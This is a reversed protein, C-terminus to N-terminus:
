SACSSRLTPRRTQSTAALAARWATWTKPRSRHRAGRTSPRPLARLEELTAGQRRSAGLVKIIRAEREGERIHLDAAGAHRGRPPLSANARVGPNTSPTRCRRCRTARPGSRRGPTPRAMPVSPPPAVVLGLVRADVQAGNGDSFLAIVDQELACGAASLYRHAGGRPTAVSPTREPYTIGHKELLAEVAPRAGDEDAVATGTGGLVLGINCDCGEPFDADIEADTPHRVLLERWAREPHKAGKPVRLPKWGLQRYHRAAEYVNRPAVIPV